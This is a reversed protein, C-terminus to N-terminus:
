ISSLKEIFSNSAIILKDLEKSKKTKNIESTFEILLKILQIDIKNDEALKNINIIKDQMSNQLTKIQQINFGKNLDNSHNKVVKNVVKNFQGIEYNLEKINTHMNIYKKELNEIEVTLNSYFEEPIQQKKLLENVNKRLENNLSRVNVVNSSIEEIKLEIKNKSEFILQRESKSNIYLYYFFFMLLISSGIGILLKRNGIFYLYVSKLVLDVANFISNYKIEINVLKIDKFLKANKRSKFKQILTLAGITPITFSIKLSGERLQIIVIKAPDIKAIKAIQKIFNEKQDYVFNEINKDVTTEILQYGYKDLKTDKQNFESIYENPLSDIFDLLQIKIKNSKRFHDEDSIINNKLQKKLMWFNSSMLILENYYEKNNSICQNAILLDFVKEIEDKAIYQKIENKM